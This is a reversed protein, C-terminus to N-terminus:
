SGSCLLTIRFMLLTMQPDDGTKWIDKKVTQITQRGIWKIKSIQFEFIQTQFGLRGLITSYNFANLTLLELPVAEVILIFFLTIVHCSPWARSSEQFPSHFPIHNCNNYRISCLIDQCYNDVVDCLNELLNSVTKLKDIDLNVLM